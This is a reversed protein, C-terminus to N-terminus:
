YSPTVLLTTVNNNSDFVVTVLIFNREMECKIMIADFGGQKTPVPPLERKFNGEKMVVSSWYNAMYETTLSLLLPPAFNKKVQDYKQDVLNKVVEQAIQIQRQETTLTELGPESQGEEAPEVSDTPAYLRLYVDSREDGDIRLVRYHTGDKSLRQSRYTTIRLGKGPLLEESGAVDEYAAQMKSVLEDFIRKAKVRDANRFFLGRVYAVEGDPIVVDTQESGPFRTKSKYYKQDDIKQASGMWHSKFGGASTRSLSEVAAKLESVDVKFASTDAFAYSILANASKVPSILRPMFDALNIGPLSGELVNGWVLRGKAAFQEGPELKVRYNRVDWKQWQLTDEPKKRPVWACQFEMDLEIPRLGENRYVFDYDVV